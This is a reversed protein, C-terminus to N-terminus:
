AGTMYDFPVIKYSNSHGTKPASFIDPAPALQYSHSPKSLEVNLPKNDQKPAIDHNSMIINEHALANKLVHNNTQSQNANEIDMLTNVITERQVRQFTRDLHRQNHLLKAYQQGIINTKEMKTNISKIDKEVGNLFKLQDTNAKPIESLLDRNAFDSSESRVSKILFKIGSSADNSKFSPSSQSKGVDYVSM